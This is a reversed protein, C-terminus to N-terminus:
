TEHASSGFKGDRASFIQVLNLNLYNKIWSTGNAFIHFHPMQINLPQTEILHSAMVYVLSFLTSKQM